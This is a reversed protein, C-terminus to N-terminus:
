ADFERGLRRQLCDLCLVGDERRLESAAWVHDWVMDWHGINTTDRACDRCCTRLKLKPMSIVSVAAAASRVPAGREVLPPVRIRIPKCRASAISSARSASRGSPVSLQSCQFHAAIASFLDVNRDAAFFNALGSNPVLRWHWFQPAFNKSRLLSGM